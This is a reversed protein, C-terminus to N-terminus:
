GKKGGVVVSLPAPTQGFRGTTAVEGAAIVAQAKKGMGAKKSGVAAPKAHCYPAALKAMEMRYTSPNLICRMERLMFDLPTIDEFFEANRLDEACRKKAVTPSMEAQVAMTNRHEFYHAQNCYKRKKFLSIHEKKAQILPIGCFLCTKTM